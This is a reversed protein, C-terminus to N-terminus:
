AGLAKTAAGLDPPRVFIVMGYKGGPAAAAQASVCNVKAEALRGLVDCAAGVRDDGQVLFCEKRASLKLGAGRAAAELADGREPVLTLQARGKGAPFATFALLNVKADRLKGLVKAGEGPRDDVEVYFYDVRRVKEGM